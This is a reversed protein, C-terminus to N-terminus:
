PQHVHKCEHVRIDLGCGKDDAQMSDVVKEWFSPDTPTLDAEDPPEEIHLTGELNAIEEALRTRRVRRARSQKQYQSYAFGAGFTVPIVCGGLGLVKMARIKNALCDPRRVQYAVDAYRLVLLKYVRVLTRASWVGVAVGALEWISPAHIMKLGHLVTTMLPAEEKQQQEPWLVGELDGTSSHKKGWKDFSDLVSM